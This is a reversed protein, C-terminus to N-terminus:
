ARKPAVQRENFRQIWEEFRERGTMRAAVDPPVGQLMLTITDDHYGFDRLQEIAWLANGLTVLPTSRTM